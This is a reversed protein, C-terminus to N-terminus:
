VLLLETIFWYEARIGNSSSGCSAVTRTVQSKFTLYTMRLKIWVSVDLCSVGLLGHHTKETLRSNSSENLLTVHGKSLFRLFWGATLRKVRTSFYYFCLFRLPRSGVEWRKSVHIPMYQDECGKILSSTILLCGATRWFCTKLKHSSINQWVARQTRLIFGQTM